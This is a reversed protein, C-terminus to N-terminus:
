FFSDTTVNRETSSDCFHLDLIAWIGTANPLFVASFGTIRSIAVFEGIRIAPPPIGPFTDADVGQNHTQNKAKTWVLQLKNHDVCASQLQNCIIGQGM